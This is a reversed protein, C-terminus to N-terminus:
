GSRYAASGLSCMRPTGPGARCCCCPCRVSIEGFHIYPSLKSTSERDIKARDHDFLPLGHELFRVLMQLGATTGATWQLAASTTLLHAPQPPLRAHLAHM